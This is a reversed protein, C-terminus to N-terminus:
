DLGLLSYFWGWPLACEWCLSGSGRKQSFGGAAGYGPLPPWAPVVLGHSPLEWIRGTIGAAM